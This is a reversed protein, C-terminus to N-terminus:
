AHAAISRGADAAGRSASTTQQEPSPTPSDRPKATRAATAPFNAPPSQAARCCDTEECAAEKHALRPIRSDSNWDQLFFFPRTTPAAAPLFKNDRSRERTTLEEWYDRGLTKLSAAAREFSQPLVITTSCSIQTVRARM